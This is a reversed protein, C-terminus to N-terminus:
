QGVDCFICAFMSVHFISVCHSQPMQTAGPATAHKAYMRTCSQSLGVQWKGQYVVGFGGKGVVKGLRVASWPIKLRLLMERQPLSRLM